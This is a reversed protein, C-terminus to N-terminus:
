GFEQPFFLHRFFAGFAVAGNVRGPFISPIQRVGYVDPINPFQIIMVSIGGSIVSYCSRNLIAGSHAM